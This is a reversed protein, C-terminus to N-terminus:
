LLQGGSYVLFDFIELNRKLYMYYNNSILIVTLVYLTKCKKSQFGAIPKEAMPINMNYM